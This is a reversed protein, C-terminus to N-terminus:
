NGYNTNEFLNLNTEQGEEFNMSNEHLYKMFEDLTQKSIKEHINPSLGWNEIRAAFLDTLKLELQNSNLNEWGTVYKIIWDSVFNKCYGVIINLNNEYPIVHIFVSNFPTNQIPNLIHKELPSFTASGYVKILPYKFVKFVFENEAKELEKEFIDKYHRLDKIGIKTGTIFTEVYERNILVYLTKSNLIRTKLELNLEKKRIEACVVRYSLLLQNRYNDMELPHTEIEKFISTDHKSCFLSLSFANNIGVRKMAIPAKESSWSFIDTAKIEIIHGKETVNNLIGNKQLLHSNIAVEVCGDIICGWKKENVHKYIESVVKKFQKDPNM